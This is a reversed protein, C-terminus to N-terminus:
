VVVYVVGGDVCVFCFGVFYGYYVYGLDDNVFLVYEFWFSM